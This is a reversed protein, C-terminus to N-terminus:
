LDKAAHALKAAHQHVTTSYDSGKTKRLNKLFEFYRHKENLPDHLARGILERATVIDGYDASEHTVINTVAFDESVSHWQDRGNYWEDADSQPGTYPDQDPSHFLDTGNNWSNNPGSWQDELFLEKILM